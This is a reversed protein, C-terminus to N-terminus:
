RRLGAVLDSEISDVSAIASEATEDLLVAETTTGLDAEAALAAANAAAVQTLRYHRVMVTGGTLLAAIAGLGGLAAGLAHSDPSASFWSNPSDGSTTVEPTGLKSFPCGSYASAPAAALAGAVIALALGTSPSLLKM